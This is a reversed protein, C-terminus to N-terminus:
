KSLQQQRYINFMDGPASGEPAVETTVIALPASVDGLANTLNTLPLTTKLGGEGALKFSNARYVRVGLLYGDDPDTSGATTSRFAQVMMDSLSDSDCGPNEDLDVCYLQTGGANCYGTSDCTFGPDTTPADVTFDGPNIESRNITVTDIIDKVPIVGSKVGNVYSSAAQAALEVRKAQVRTGVSFAVVPGIFTLLSAVVIVAMIGELITYGAESSKQTYIKILKHMNM